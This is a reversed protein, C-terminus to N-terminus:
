TSGTVLGGSPGDNPAAGSAPGAAPGLDRGHVLRVDRRRDHGPQNSLLESLSLAHSAGALKRSVKAGAREAMFRHLAVPINLDLDGFVFWEITWAVCNKSNMARIASSAVSPLVTRRAGTSMWGMAASSTALATPVTVSLGGALLM